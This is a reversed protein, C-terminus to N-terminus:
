KPSNQNIQQILKRVTSKVEDPLQNFEEVLRKDAATLTQEEKLSAPRAIVEGGHREIFEEVGNQVLGALSIGLEAAAQKYEDRVGKKVWIALRDYYLNKYAQNDTAM